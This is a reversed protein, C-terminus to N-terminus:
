IEVKAGLLKIFERCIATDGPWAPAAVLNRDVVAQDAPVEVADIQSSHMPLTQILMMAENDEAFTKMLPQLRIFFTYDVDRAIRIDLLHHKVM